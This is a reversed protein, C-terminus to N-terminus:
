FLTWDTVSTLAYKSRIATLFANDSAFTDDWFTIDDIRIVTNATGVAASGICLGFCFRNVTSQASGNTAGTYNQLVTAVGTSPNIDWVDYKGAGPTTSPYVRFALLHWRGGDADRWNSGENQDFATSSIVASSGPWGNEDTTRFDYFNARINFFPSYTGSTTDLTLIDVDTDIGDFSVVKIPFAFQIIPGAACAITGGDFQIWDNVSGNTELCKTSGIGPFVSTSVKSYPEASMATSLTFGPISSTGMIISSGDGTLGEFTETVSAAYTGAAAFAFLAFVALVALVKKRGM